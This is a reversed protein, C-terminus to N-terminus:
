VKSNEDSKKLPKICYYSLYPINTAALIYLLSVFLLRPKIQYFCFWLEHRMVFVCKEVILCKYFYVRFNECCM